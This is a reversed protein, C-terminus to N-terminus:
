CYCFYTDEKKMGMRLASNQPHPNQKVCVEDLQLAKTM